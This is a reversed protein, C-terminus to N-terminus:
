NKYPLATIKRGVVSFKVTRTQELMSLIESVNKFRSIVGVFEDGEFDGKYDVDVDYWRSIQRM